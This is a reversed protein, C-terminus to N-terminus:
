DRFLNQRYQNKSLVTFHRQWGVGRGIANYDLADTLGIASQFALIAYLKPRESHLLTTKRMNTKFTLSTKLFPLM